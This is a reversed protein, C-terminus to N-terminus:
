FVVQTEVKKLALWNLVFLHALCRQTTENDPRTLVLFSKAQIIWKQRMDTELIWSATYGLCGHQAAAAAWLLLDLQAAVLAHSRSSHIFGSGSKKKEMEAEVRFWWPVLWTTKVFQNALASSSQDGVTGAGAALRIGVVMPFSQCHYSSVVRKSRLFWWRWNTM